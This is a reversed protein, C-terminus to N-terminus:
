WRSPTALTLDPSLFPIFNQAYKPVYQLQTARKLGDEEVLKAIKATVKADYICMTLHKRGLHEQGQGAYNGYHYQCRCFTRGNRSDAKNADLLWPRRPQTNESAICTSRIM